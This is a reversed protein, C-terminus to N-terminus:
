NSKIRQYIRHGLTFPWCVSQIISGMLTDISKDIYTICHYGKNYSDILQDHINVIFIFPATVILGSTYILIVDQTKM